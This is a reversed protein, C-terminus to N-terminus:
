EKIGSELLGRCHAFVKIGEGIRWARGRRSSLTLMVVIM